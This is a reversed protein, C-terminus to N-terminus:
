KAPLVAVIRRLFEPILVMGQKASLRMTDVVYERYYSWPLYYRAIVAALITLISALLLTRKIQPFLGRVWGQNRRRNNAAKLRELFPEKKIDDQTVKWADFSGLTWLFPMPLLSFLSVLLVVEVILRSFSDELFPWAQVIGLASVLSFIGFAAFVAFMGGKIPQGNLFQGWGPVLLSCITPWVRSLVGIFPTRRAKIATHYADSANSIWFFLFFFLLLEAVLVAEAPSISFFRLYLPLEEQFMFLLIALANGFLALCVYNLGKSRQGNYLQGSGWFLLSLTYALAPDQEVPHSAEKEIWQAPRPELYEDPDKIVWIKEM